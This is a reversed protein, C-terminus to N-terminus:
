LESVMGPLREGGGRGERGRGGLSRPLIKSNLRHWGGEVVPTDRRTQRKEEQLYLKSPLV